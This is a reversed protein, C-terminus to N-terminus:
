TPLSSSAAILLPTPKASQTISLPKFSKPPPSVPLARSPRQLAALRNKDMPDFVKRPISNLADQTVNGGVTSMSHTTPNITFLADSLFGNLANNALQISQAPPNPTGGGGGGGGSGGLTVAPITIPAPFGGADGGSLTIDYTGAAAYFTFQGSTSAVFPNSLTAGGPTSFITAINTTGTLFVTVNCRPYSAQLLNTSNLGSVHAATAGTTCFNSYGINTQAFAPTSLIALFAFLTFLLKTITKM